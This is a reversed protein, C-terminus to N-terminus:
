ARGRDLLRYQVAEAVHQLAVAESAELDAITRAVRRIKDYARASLGLEAMAQRILRRSNAELPAFRDLESTTLVANPRIAAGHRAHQRARAAVVAKRLRKTETKREPANQLRDFPVQPVEVHIDIRDILPGSIRSLYRDMERHGRADVPKNGGPTPNLAAVLMFRAPYRVSGQARAITVEGDELPQRLTELVARPFEPMEDLFLIGRHALTVEGPRPVSGGGIMAVGSATHHPTRVPRTEILSADRPVLGVTSFIRTVEMAESRSLAPLIGAIAKAILTKGTGAPGVMLLNHHGAAAVLAARKPAEQGRIDAFDVEPEIAHLVADVDVEAQPTIAIRENLFGVVEALTEVGYVKTEGVAAAERANAAPVIIGEMAQARALCALNIVGNIPRVRGDLSLEGALLFGQHRRTSVAGEAALLGIAIPLDFVPGEKRIDAPALNIVVRALPFAYGSNAIASRVREISEKVAADPLGVIMTAPLGQGSVDVEVECAIPEIGQLVFSHVQALM